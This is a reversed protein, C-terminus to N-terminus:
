DCATLILLLEETKKQTGNMVNYELEVRERWCTIGKPGHKLSINGCFGKHHVADRKWAWYGM